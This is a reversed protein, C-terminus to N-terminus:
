KNNNNESQKELFIIRMLLILTKLKLASNSLVDPNQVQLFLKVATVVIGNMTHEYM